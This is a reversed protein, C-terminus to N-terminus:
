CVHWGPSPLLGLHFNGCTRIKYKSTNQETCCAYLEVYQGSCTVSHHSSGSLCLKEELMFLAVGLMFSLLQVFLHAVSGSESGLALVQVATAVDYFHMGCQLLM